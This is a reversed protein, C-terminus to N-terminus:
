YVIGFWFFFSTKSCLYHAHQNAHAVHRAKPYFISDKVQVFLLIVHSLEVLPKGKDIVWM